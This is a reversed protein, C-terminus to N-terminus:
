EESVAAWMAAARAYAADQSWPPRVALLRELGPNPGPPADLLATLQAFRAADVTLLQDSDM